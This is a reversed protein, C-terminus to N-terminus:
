IEKNLQSNTKLAAEIKSMTDALDILRESNLSYLMYDSPKVYSANTGSLLRHARFREEPLGPRLTEKLTDALTAVWVALFPTVSHNMNYVFAINEIGPNDLLYRRIAMPTAYLLLNTMDSDRPAFALAHKHFCQRQGYYIFLTEPDGSSMLEVDPHVNLVRKIGLDDLRLEEVQEDTFGKNENDSIRKAIEVMRGHPLVYPAEHERDLLAICTFAENRALHMYMREAKKRNDTNLYIAMDGFGHAQFPDRAAIRFQKPKKGWMNIPTPILGHVTYDVNRYLELVDSIRKLDLLLDVCEIRKEFVTTFPKIYFVFVGPVETKELPINYAFETSGRTIAFQLSYVFRAFADDSNILIKPLKITVAYGEKPSPVEKRFENLSRLLRTVRRFRFRKNPTMSAELLDSTRRIAANFTGFKM